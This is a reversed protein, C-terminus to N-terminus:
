SSNNKFHWDTSKKRKFHRKQMRELEMQIPSKTPMTSKVILTVVIKRADALSMLPYDVEKEIQEKLMFLMAMIVIAHHHHWGKWKRVQYDSMGLENKGDDFNREVWYRQAQFFAFEQASYQSLCGNSLSYKTDTKNVNHNIVRQIVITRKRAKKEQGDWVWVSRCHIWAKLWGKTTKRIKIKEWDSDTLQKLYNEVKQSKTLTKYQTPARGRGSKKEPLFIVPDTLYLNQTKHVDLVFLLELGDLGKGLEYNHGYLGDGGVWDFKVGNSLSSKVIELALEPKTKYVLESCPIGAKKSKEKDEVWGKPLFLREDLLSSRKGNVLSAYVGVQCNDVKGITGAYQRTVGVSCDGKKLHSSEDIIFGTPVKSKRKESAMLESLDQGLQTLLVEHSWTSNTLFHQYQHYPLISSDQEEIREMNGKGKESRLLGQMYHYGQESVNNRYVAFCKKYSSFYSEFKTEYLIGKKPSIKTDHQM